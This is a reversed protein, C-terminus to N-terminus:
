FEEFSGAVFKGQNPNGDGDAGVQATGDDKNGVQETSLSSQKVLDEDPGEDMPESNDANIEESKEPSDNLDM